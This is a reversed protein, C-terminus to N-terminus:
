KPSKVKISLAEELISSDFCNKINNMAEADLTGIDVNFQGYGVMADGFIYDASNLIGKNAYPRDLIEQAMSDDTYTRGESAFWPMCFAKRTAPDSLAEMAREIARVYKVLDERRTQIVEARTFMMDYLATGTADEFSCLRVAGAAEVQNSYPAFTAIADGEGAIFAQAGAGFEMHVINVDASTLGYQALYRLVNFQSATGLACLFTKKRITEASGYMAKAESGQGQVKMLPSDPRVWIGMGGSGAVDALLKCNGSALSFITAAGSMAVDLEKAATAENIPAGSPFIIPAITVGEEEFFGKELAYQVPAGVSSPMLGVRLPVSSVTKANGGSSSTAQKPVCSVALILIFVATCVISFRNKM